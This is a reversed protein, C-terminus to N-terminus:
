LKRRPALLPRKFLNCKGALDEAFTLEARDVVGVALIVLTLDVGYFHNVPLAYIALFLQVVKL